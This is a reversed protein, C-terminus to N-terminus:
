NASSMDIEICRDNENLSLWEVLENSPLLVAWDIAEVPRFLQPLLLTFAWDTQQQGNCIWVKGAIKPASYDLQYEVPIFGDCWLFRFRRESHERLAECCCFELREWCEAGNM